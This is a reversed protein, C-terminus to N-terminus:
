FVSSQSRQLPETVSSKEKKPPDKKQKKRDSELESEDNQEFDKQRAKKFGRKSLMQKPKFEKLDTLRNESQEDESAENALKLLQENEDVERFNTDFM